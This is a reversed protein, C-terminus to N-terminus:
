GHMVTGTSVNLDEGTIASAAESCLFRVGAAVEAATTFRGLPSDALLRARAREPLVRDLREGEVPGPSVLNVRVGSPGADTALTRVLGILAAKSTAYAARRPLPRKGTMSGIVVVSGRGQEVMAPLFARCCLFVGTVNTRLTAEWEEIPLEWAPAIPGAIGAVAVLVEVPGWRDDVAAALREVAAPDGVDTAVVLAEGGAARVEEAVGALRDASRAVLAVRAGDAAFALAVARGIGQGAGTVVVPGTM